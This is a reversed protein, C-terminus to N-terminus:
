IDRKLNKPIKIINKDFEISNSNSFMYFKNEKKNYFSFYDVKYPKIGNIYFINHTDTEEMRTYAKTQITQNKHKGYSFRIDIGKLMDDKEGFKAQKVDTIGKNMLRKITEKEADDGIKSTRDMAKLLEPLIDSHPHFIRDKYEDLIKFLKQLENSWSSLYFDVQTFNKIDGNVIKNNIWNVLICIAIYNTNLYNLLSRNENDLKHGTNYVGGKEITNVWKGRPDYVSKLIKLIHNPLTIKDRGRGVEFDFLRKKNTAFFGSRCNYTVVNERM